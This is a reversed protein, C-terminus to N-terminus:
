QNKRDDLFGALMASLVGCREQIKGHSRAHRHLLTAHAIHILEDNVVKHEPIGYSFFTELATLAGNLDPESHSIRITHIARHISRIEYETGNNGGSLLWTCCETFISCVSTPLCPTVQLSLIGGIIFLSFRMIVGHSDNINGCLTM